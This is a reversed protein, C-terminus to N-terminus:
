QDSTGGTPQDDTTTAAGLAPSHAIFLLKKLDAALFSDNNKAAAEIAAEIAGAARPTVAILIAIATQVARPSFSELNVDASPEM